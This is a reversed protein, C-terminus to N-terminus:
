TLFYLYNVPRQFSVCYNIKVMNTDQFMNDPSCTEYEECELKEEHGELANVLHKDGRNRMTLESADRRAAHHGNGSSTIPSKRRADDVLRDGSRSRDEYLCALRRNIEIEIWCSSISRPRSGGEDHLAPGFSGPLLKNSHVAVIM